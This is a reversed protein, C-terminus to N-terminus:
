DGDGLTPTRWVRAAAVTAAILLILLMTTLDMPSLRRALRDPEGLGGRIASTASFCVIRLLDGSRARKRQSM